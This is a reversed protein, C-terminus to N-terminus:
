RGEFALNIEYDDSDNPNDAFHIVVSDARTELVALDRGSRHTVRATSWNVKSPLFRTAGSNPLKPAMEPSWAIGNLSVEAPWRWFKHQWTAGEDDIVLRDSGDIRASIRLQAPQALPMPPTPAPASTFLHLKFEYAGETKPTDNVFVVVNSSTREMVVTDRGTILELVASQFNIDPPLFDAKGLPTFVNKDCPNWQVGNISVPQSPWQWNVHDWVAGRHNITIRDSGDITGFFHLTAGPQAKKSEPDVSAKPLLRAAPAQVLRLDESVPRAPIQEGELRLRYVQMTTPKALRFVMEGQTSTAPQRLCEKWPAGPTLGKAELIVEKAEVPARACIVINTGELTIRAIQVANPSAAAGLWWAAVAAVACSLVLLKARELGVKIQHVVRMGSQSRRGSRSLFTLRAPWNAEARWTLNM